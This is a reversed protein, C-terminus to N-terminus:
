NKRKWIQGGRKKVVAKVELMEKIEALHADISLLLNYQAFELNLQKRKIKMLEKIVM